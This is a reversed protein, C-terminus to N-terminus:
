VMEPADDSSPPKTTPARERMNKRAVAMAWAMGNTGRTDKKICVYRIIGVMSDYGFTREAKAWDAEDNKTSFGTVGCATVLEDGSNTSAAVSDYERMVRKPDGYIKRWVVSNVWVISRGCRCEDQDQRIWARCVSCRSEVDDIESRGVHGSLSRMLKNLDIKEYDM